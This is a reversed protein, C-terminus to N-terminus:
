SSASRLTKLKMWEANNAKFDVGVQKSWWERAQPGPRIADEIAQGSPEALLRASMSRDHNVEEIDCIRYHVILGSDYWWQLVEPRNHRTASLLVEENFQPHM